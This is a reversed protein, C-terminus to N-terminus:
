ADRILKLYPCVTSQMADPRSAVRTLAGDIIEADFGFHDYGTRCIQYYADTPVSYERSEDMIYLMVSIQESTGDPKQLLAPLETKYYYYPIGEYYDLSKENEESIEWVGLPVYKGKEPEITLHLKFELQWDQLFAVGAIQSGPCRFAMQKKNLNSGYAGYYRTM